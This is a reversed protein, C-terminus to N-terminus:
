KDGECDLTPNLAMSALAAVEAAYDVARRAALMVAAHTLSPATSQPACATAVGPLIRVFITRPDAEHQAILERMTGLMDDIDQPIEM